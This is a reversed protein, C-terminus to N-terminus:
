TKCLEIDIGTSELLENALVPFSKQGESILENNAPSNKWPHLSSLIGGAAWTAERGLKGKDVLAVNMGQIQLNRDTLMGIIGGGVVIADYNM